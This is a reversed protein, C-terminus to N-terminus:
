CSAGPWRMTTFAGWYARTCSSMRSGACDTVALDVEIDGEDKAQIFAVDLPM